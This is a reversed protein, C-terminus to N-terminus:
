RNDKSFLPSFDHGCKLPRAQHPLEEFFQEIPLRGRPRTRQQLMECAYCNRPMTDVVFTTPSILAGIAKRFHDQLANQIIVPQIPRAIITYEYVNSLYITDVTLKHEALTKSLREMSVPDCFDLRLFAFRNQEFLKKVKLFRPEEVLWSIARTIDGQLDVLANKYSTEVSIISDGSFYFEKQTKLLSQIKDIVEKQTHSSRIIKTMEQWFHEVRRSRDIVILNIVQDQDNRGM